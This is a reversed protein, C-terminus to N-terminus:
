FEKIRRNKPIFNTIKEKSAKGCGVFDNQYKLLIFGNLETKINLEKGQLWEKVQKKNLEFINKKTNKSILQSADISLRLEEGKTTRVFKGFYIGIREISLNDELQSIQEKNLEGQYLFIREAGKKLFIGKIKKIGFQKNLKEIIKEKPIIKFKKM